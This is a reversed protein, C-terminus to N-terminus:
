MFYYLLKRQLGVCKAKNDSEFIAGLLTDFSTTDLCVFRIASHRNSTNFSSQYNTANTLATFKLTKKFLMKDTSHECIVATHLPNKTCQPMM